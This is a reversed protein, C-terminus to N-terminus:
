QEPNDLGVMEMKRAKRRKVVKRIVAIILLVAGAIALLFPLPCIVFFVAANAVGKIANVLAQVADRATGKLGWEGVDIPQVEVSEKASITLSVSSMAASEQLYQMRGKLVEIEERVAKLERYINLVDTTDYANELLNALEAEALEANKLRASLDTYEETVDRGTINEYVVDTKSNEVLSKIQTLASTLKEAPVRLTINVYKVPNGLSTYSISTSSTVIYGAMSETMTTVDELATEPDIVIISLEANKIIMRESVAPLASAESAASYAGAEDYATTIKEEYDYAPMEANMYGENASAGSLDTYSRLPSACGAMLLIACCVLGLWVTKKVM